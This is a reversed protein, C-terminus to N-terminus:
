IMKIMVMMIMMVIMMDDIMMDMTMMMMMMYLKGLSHGTFYINKRKMNYQHDFMNIIALILLYLNHTKNYILLPIYLNGLSATIFFWSFDLLVDNM